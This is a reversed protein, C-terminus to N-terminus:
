VLTLALPHLIALPLPYFIALLEAHSNGVEKDFVSKIFDLDCIDGYYMSFRDYKSELDKVNSAKIRKDYYANMEDVGIVRDGRELLAASTASGIFGGAGTVLVVKRQEAAGKGM